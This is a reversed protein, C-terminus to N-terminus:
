FNEQMALLIDKFSFVVSVFAVSMLFAGGSLIFYRSASYFEKNFGSLLAITNVNLKAYSVGIFVLLLAFTTIFILTGVLRSISADM